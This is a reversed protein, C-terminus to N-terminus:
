KYTNKFSELKKLVINYIEMKKINNAKVFNSTDLDLNDSKMKEILWYIKQISKDLIKIKENNDLNSFSSNQSLFYVKEDMKNEVLKQLSDDLNDNYEKIKEELITVKTNVLEQKRYINSDIATNSKIYDLYNQYQDIKIYKTLDIYLKKKEELLKVKINSTDLLQKSKNLLEWELISKNKNYQEIISKVNNIDQNELDERFFSNLKQDPSFDKLKIYFDSKIKDSEISEKLERITKSSDSFVLDDAYSKTFSFFLIVLLILSKMM